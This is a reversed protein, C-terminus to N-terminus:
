MMPVSEQVAKIFGFNDRNDKCDGLEQGFALRGMTDMSWFQSVAALDMLKGKGNAFVYEREILDIFGAIGAEIDVELRENEKGDYGARMIRRLETHREESRTSFMNDTRPKFRLADYWGSRRYLSRPANMRRILEPSSTIVHKPGTRCLQGYKQSLELCKHAQNGGSSLILHYIRSFPAFRPGPIHSLRCYVIFRNIFIYITILSLAAIILPNTMSILQSWLTKQSAAKVVVVM